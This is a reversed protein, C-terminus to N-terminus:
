GRPPFRFPLGFLLRARLPKTLPLGFPLGFPLGAPIVRVPRYQDQHRFTAAQNEATTDLTNQATEEGPQAFVPSSALTAGVSLLLSRRHIYTM